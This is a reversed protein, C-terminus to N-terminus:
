LPTKGARCEGACLRGWGLRDLSLWVGEEILRRYIPACTQKLQGENVASFHSIGGDEVQHLADVGAGGPLNAEMECIANTALWRVQGQLVPAFDNTPAHSLLVHRSVWWDPSAWSAVSSM